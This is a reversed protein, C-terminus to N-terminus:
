GEESLQVLAEIRQEMEAYRPDDRVPEFFDRFLGLYTTPWLTHSRDYLGRSCTMRVGRYTRGDQWRYYGCTARIQFDPLVWASSRLILTEGDPIAMLKELLSVADNVCAFAYDIDKKWLIYRRAIQFGLRIREEAWLDLTGDASVPYEPLPHADHLAHLYALNAEHHNSRYCMLKNLMNYLELQEIYERKRLEERATYRQYLIEELSFDYFSFYKRLFGELHEDDEIISMVRLVETQKEMEPVYVRFEDLLQRAEELVDPPADMRYRSLPQWAYLLEIFFEAYQRLDRRLERLLEVVTDNERKIVAQDLRNTLDKLQERRMETDSGLLHDVTVEFIDAIVPLFEIDPYTGGNEWRSVTQFTVGLKSALEDQTMDHSRRLTRINNGINLKM